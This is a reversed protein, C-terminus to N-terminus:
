LIHYRWYNRFDSLPTSVQCNALRTQNTIVSLQTLVKLNREADRIMGKSSPRSSFYGSWYAHPDSAYPFFDDEKTPWSIGAGHLAQLYCSPSSYFVNLRRGGVELGQAYKILLDLNMFWSHAAQVICLNM